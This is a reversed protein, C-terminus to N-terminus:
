LNRSTLSKEDKTCRRSCCVASCLAPHIHKKQICQHIHITHALAHTHTHAHIHIDTFTNFPSVESLFPMRMTGEKRGEKQGREDEVRAGKQGRGKRGKTVGGYVGDSVCESV